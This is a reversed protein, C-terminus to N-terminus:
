LEGRILTGKLYNRVQKNNDSLLALTAYNGNAMRMVGDVVECNFFGAGEEVEVVFQWKATKYSMGM